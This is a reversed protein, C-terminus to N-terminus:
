RRYGSASQQQAAVLDIYGYYRVIKVPLGAAKAVKSINVM